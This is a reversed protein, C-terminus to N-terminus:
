DTRPSLLELIASISRATVSAIVLLTLTGRGSGGVVGYSSTETQTRDAELLEGTRMKM